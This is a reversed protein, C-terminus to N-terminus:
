KRQRGAPVGQIREDKLKKKLNGAQRGALSSPPLNIIMDRLKREIRKEDRCIYCVDM